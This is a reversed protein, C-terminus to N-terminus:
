FCDDLGAARCNIASCEILPAQNRPVRLRQGEREAIGADGTPCHITAASWTGFPKDLLLPVQVNSPTDQNAPQSRAMMEFTKSDRTNREGLSHSASLIREQDTGGLSNRRDQKGNRSNCVAGQQGKLHACRISAVSRDQCLIHVPKLRNPYRGWTV